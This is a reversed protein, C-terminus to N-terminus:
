CRDRRRSPVIRRSREGQLHNNKMHVSPEKENLWTLIITMALARSKSADSEWM